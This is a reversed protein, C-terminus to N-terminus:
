PENNLNAIKVQCYPVNVGVNYEIRENVSLSGNTADLQQAQEILLTTFGLLSATGAALLGNATKETPQPLAALM